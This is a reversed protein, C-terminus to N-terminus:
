VRFTIKKHCKKCLTRGNNIDWMREIKNEELLSKFQVPYHDANLEVYHGNGNRDGCLVCTYSDREFVKKRWDKYIKLNRLRRYEPTIGGRWQHNKSGTQSVSMKTKTVANKEKGSNSKGLDSIRKIVNKDTFMCKQSCYIRKKSPPAYFRSGCNVCTNYNRRNESCCERSCFTAEPYRSFFERNCVNCYKKYRNKNKIYWNKNYIRHYEKNINEDKFPM